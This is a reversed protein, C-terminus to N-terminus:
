KHNEANTKENRTHINEIKTKENRSLFRKVVSLTFDAAEIALVFSIGSYLNLIGGLAALFTFVTYKPIEKFVVIGSLDFEIGVVLFNSAVLDYFDGAKDPDIEGKNTLFDKFRFEFARDKIFNAYFQASDKKKFWPHLSVHTTVSVDECIDPCAFNNQGNWTYLLLTEVCKKSESTPGFCDPLLTYNTVNQWLFPPLDYDLCECNEVFMKQLMTMQCAKKSYGLREGVFSYISINGVDEVCNGYPKPLRKTYSASMVIRTKQGTSLHISSFSAVAETGVFLHFGSEEFFNPRTEFKRDFNDVFLVAEMVMKKANKVPIRMEYCNFYMPIPFLTVDAQTNPFPIPSDKRWMYNIVHAFMGELKHGLQEAGEVGLAFYFNTRWKMNYRDSDNPAEQKHFDDSLNGDSFFYM